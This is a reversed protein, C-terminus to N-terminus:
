EAEAERRAVYERCASELYALFWSRVNPIRHTKYALYLIADGLIEVRGEEPIGYGTFLDHITTARSRARPARAEARSTSDLRASTM